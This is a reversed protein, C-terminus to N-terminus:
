AAPVPVQSSTTLAKTSLQAVSYWSALPQAEPLQGSHCCSREFRCPRAAVPVGRGKKHRACLLFSDHLFRDAFVPRHEDQGGQQGEDDAKNPGKDPSDVKGELPEGSHGLGGK